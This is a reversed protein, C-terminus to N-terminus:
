REEVYNVKKPHPHREIVELNSVSLVANYLTSSIQCKGGGYGHTIDGDTTQIDAELYGKEPTAPGLTDCFSFTEGPNVITGNLENCAITINNVREEDKDYIVTSFSSIIKEQNQPLSDSLREVNANSTNSYQQMSNSACGSLFLVFSILIISIKKM